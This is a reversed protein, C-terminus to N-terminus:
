SAALSIHSTCELYSMLAAKAREYTERAAKEKQSLLLVNMRDLGSISEPTFTLLRGTGYNALDLYRELALRCSQRLRHLEKDAHQLNM